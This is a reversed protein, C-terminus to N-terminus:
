SRSFGSLEADGRFLHRRGDSFRTIAGGRYVTQDPATLTLDHRAPAVRHHASTRVQAEWDTPGPADEGDRVVVFVDAYELDVPIGDIEAHTILIRHSEM